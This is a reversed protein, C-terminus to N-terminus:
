SSKPPGGAPKGNWEKPLRAKSLLRGFVASLVLEDSPPGPSRFLVYDPEGAANAIFVSIRASLIARLARPEKNIPYEPDDAVKLCLADVDEDLSFDMITTRVDTTLAPNWKRLYIFIADGARTADIPYGM